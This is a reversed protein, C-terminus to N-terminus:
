GHAQVSFARWGQHEPHSMGFQRKVIMYRLRSRTWFSLALAKQQRRVHRPAPEQTRQASACM